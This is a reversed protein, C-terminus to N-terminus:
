IGCVLCSQDGRGAKSITCPQIRGNAKVFENINASMSGSLVRKGGGSIKEMLLIEIGMKNGTGSNRGEKRGERRGRRETWGLGVAPPSIM